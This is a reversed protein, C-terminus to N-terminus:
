PAVCLLYVYHKCVYMCRFRRVEKSILSFMRKGGTSSLMGSSAKTVAGHGLILISFYLLLSFLFVLIYITDNYKEYKFCRRLKDACTRSKRFCSPSTFCNRSGSFIKIFYLVISIGFLSIKEINRSTKLWWSTSSKFCHKLCM